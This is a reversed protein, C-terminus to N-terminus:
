INLQSKIIDFDDVSFKYIDKFYDIIEKMKDKDGM